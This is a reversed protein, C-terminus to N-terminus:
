HLWFTSLCVVTEEFVIQERMRTQQLRASKESLVKEEEVRQKELRDHQRREIELRRKQHPTTSTQNLATRLSGFLRSARSREDQRARARSLVPDRAPPSTHSFSTEVGQETATLSPEAPALPNASAAQDRTDDRPTRTRKPSEDGVHSESHSARNGRRACPKLRQANFSATQDLGTPM